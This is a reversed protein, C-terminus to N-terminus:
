IYSFVPSELHCQPLSDVQLRLLCLFHLNSGQTPFIGQLLFHCEVRTNNGPFNRPCLVRAPQLGPAQLGPCTASNSVVSYGLVTMLIHPPPPKTVLDHGVRTVGYVAVQWAGRDMPNELYSYQLPNGNGEGPSRGLRLSLGLDGTNCTSEKSVSSHPFGRM